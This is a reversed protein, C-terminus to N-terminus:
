PFESMTAFFSAAPDEGERRRGEFQRANSINLKLFRSLLFVPLVNAKKPYYDLKRQRNLGYQV